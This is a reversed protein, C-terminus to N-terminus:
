GINKLYKTISSNIYAPDYSSLIIGKEYKVVREGAATGSFVAVPYGMKMAEESTYSFTEPTISPVFFLDIKREKVITELDARKYAGSINLFKHEIKESTIGLIVIRFLDIESEDWYRLINKIVNLGKQVNISGLIGIVYPPTHNVQSYINEVDNVQHPVVSIKENVSDKFVKELLKKSVDSFCIIENSNKLLKEFSLRWKALNKYKNYFVRYDGENNGICNQCKETLPAGCYIDRENLLVYNPCIYFYDNIAISLSLKFKKRLLIIENNIKFIDPFSFLNNVFIKHIKLKSILKEIDSFYKIIYKEKNKENVYTIQFVNLLPIFTLYYIDEIKRTAEIKKDSYLNAGGGLSHDIILVSPKLIKGKSFANFEFFANKDVQMSEIQEWSSLRWVHLTQIINKFDTKIILFLIYKITKINLQRRMEIFINSVNINRAKNLASFLPRLIVFLLRPLYKKIKNRYLKYFYNPIKWRLSEKIRKLERLSEEINEIKKLSEEIDTGETIENASLNDLKFIKNKILLNAKILNNIRSNKDEEHILSYHLQWEEQLDIFENGIKENKFLIGLGFSHNLDITLHKSRIEEWFKYVGFNEKLVAIDHFLVIGNDSVKGFWTEFDHKVADYTHMGDIHLLDISKDNFRSTANDFLDRILTYNLDSFCAESIKKVNEFISNDFKGMHLDGKWTDIAFIKADSKQDKIAQCFSFFSTGKYTGLEVITNPKTNRVLDYAFAKHGSWHLGADNLYREHEFKPEFYKWSM